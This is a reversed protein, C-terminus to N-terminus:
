LEATRVKRLGKDLTTKIQWGYFSQPLGYIERPLSKNPTYCTRKITNSNKNLNGEGMQSQNCFQM